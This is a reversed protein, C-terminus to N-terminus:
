HHAGHGADERRRVVASVDVEEGGSLRLV